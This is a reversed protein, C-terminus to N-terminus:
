THNYTIVESDLSVIWQYFLPIEKCSEFIKSKSAMPRHIFLINFQKETTISPFSHVTTHDPSLHFTIYMIFVWLIQNTEEWASLVTNRLRKFKPLLLRGNRSLPRHSTLWTMEIKISLCFLNLCETNKRRNNKQCLLPFLLVYLTTFGSYTQYISDSNYGWKFHSFPFCILSLHFRILVLVYYPLCWVGHSWLWCIPNPIFDASSWCDQFLWVELDLTM